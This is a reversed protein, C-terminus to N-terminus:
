IDEQAPAPNSFDFSSADIQRVKNDAVLQMLIQHVFADNLPLSHKAAIIIESIKVTQKDKYTALIWKTAEARFVDPGKIISKLESGAIEKLRARDAESFQLVTCFHRRRDKTPVAIRGYPNTCAIDLPSLFQGLKQENLDLFLSDKERISQAMLDERFTDKFHPKETSIYELIHACLMAKRRSKSFNRGSSISEREWAKAVADTFSTGPLETELLKAASLLEMYGHKKADDILQNEPLANPPEVKHKKAITDLASQLGALRSTISCAPNGPEPPRPKGLFM